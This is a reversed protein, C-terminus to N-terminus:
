NMNMGAHNENAAPNEAATKPYPDLKLPAGAFKSPDKMSPSNRVADVDARMEEVDSAVAKHPAPQQGCSALLGIVLPVVPYRRLAAKIM